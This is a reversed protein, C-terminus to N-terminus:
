NSLDLAVVTSETVQLMISGFSYLDCWTNVVPSHDGDVSYLEPASWRYAGSITSTFYSSGKVESIVQSLGFDGLFAEKNPGILVNAQVLINVLMTSLSLDYVGTLDGHVISQTHVACVNIDIVAYKVFTVDFSVILLVMLWEAYSLLPLFDSM